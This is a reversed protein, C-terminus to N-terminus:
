KQQDTSQQDSSQQGASQQDSDQQESTEENQIAPSDGEAETGDSVDMFRGETYADEAAADSKEQKGKASRRGEWANGLEQGADLRMTNLFLYSVSFAVVVAIITALLWGTELVLCLAFVGFFIALRVLGYKFIKM